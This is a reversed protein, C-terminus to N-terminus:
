AVDVDIAIMEWVVNSNNIPSVIKLTVAVDGGVTTKLEILDATKAEVPDDAFVRPVTIKYRLVGRTQAAVQQEGPYFERTKWVCPIFPTTRPTTSPDPFGSDDTADDVNSALIRCEGNSVADIVDPMVESGLEEFVTALSM